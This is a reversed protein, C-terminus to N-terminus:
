EAEDAEDATLRGVGLLLEELHLVLLNRGLVNENVAGVAPQENDLAGDGVQLEDAAVMGASGPM